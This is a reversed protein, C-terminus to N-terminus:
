GTASSAGEVAASSALVEDGYAFLAPLGGTHLFLFSGPSGARRRAAARRLLGAMARGTYVPDLLLGESRAALQMAGRVASSLRGYGPALVADDVVVDTATVGGEGSPGGLLQEVERWRAAIREAQAGAPRRVCVGCVPTRQGLRRLGVLLGAHTHGSGSGVVIEDIEELAGQELLEAAAEVYALAGLPPPGPALRVLYPRRGEAALREALREMAADAGAEDEGEPYEHVIAGLLRDLLVNGSTRYGADQRPVRAELQVHCAMGLRAAAAAACRVYNSQVAGTILVTDAGESRAAGLSFELQRVKNGGFALGTEHDAKCLLRRAGAAAALRPLEVVPTPLRALSVRPFDRLTRRLEDTNM